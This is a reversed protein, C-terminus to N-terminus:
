GACFERGPKRHIEAIEVGLPSDPHLVFIKEHDDSIGVERQSCIMGTSKIGAKDVEGVLRGQIRAGAGAYAVLDGVGFGKGGCVVRVSEDGLDLEVLQLNESRPHPEVATVRASVVHTVPTQTLLSFDLLETANQYMQGLFEGRNERPIQGDFYEQFYWLCKAIHTGVDGIYNASVVDFGNWRFIRVLADGLAANRTHGVHFAKHTNPQSYEIMVREGVAPRRALFTGDLIAPIVQAAMRVRDLRFNVYPGVARAQAIVRHDQRNQEMLAALDQAIKVPAQRFIKALQFCGFAYDGLSRDRPVELIRLIDSIGPLEAAPSSGGIEMKALCDAVFRAVQKRYEM